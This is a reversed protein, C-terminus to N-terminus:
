KPTSGRSMLVVPADIRMNVQDLLRQTLNEVTELALYAIITMRDEGSFGAHRSAQDATHVINSCHPFPSTDGWADRVCQDIRKRLERPDNEFPKM